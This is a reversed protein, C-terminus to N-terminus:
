KIDKFLLFYNFRNTYFNFIKEKVFKKLINLNNEKDGTLTQNISLEYKLVIKKIERLYPMYINQIIKKDLDYGSYLKVGNKNVRLSHFHYMGVESTKFRDLTWPAQFYSLKKSICFNKPYKLFLDDFYKQDGIIGKKYDVSTSEICMDLWENLILKATSNNKFTLFQVCFRGNKRRGEYKQHFGHEQIFIDKGSLEFENLIEDLKKFFYVDADIYTIANLNNFTELIYKISIPTLLWCYEHFNRNQRHNIRMKKEIESLKILEINQLNIEKLFNYIREDLCIVWIKCEIKKKLSDILALGQPIYNYNFLTVFNNM